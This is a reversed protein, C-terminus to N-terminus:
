SRKHFIIRINFKVTACYAFENKFIFWLLGEGIQQQLNEIISRLDEPAVYQRVVSSSGRRGRTAVRGPPQNDNGTTSHRRSIPRAPRLRFMATQVTADFPLGVFSQFIRDTLLQRGNNAIIDPRANLDALQNSMSRTVLFIDFYFKYNNSYM